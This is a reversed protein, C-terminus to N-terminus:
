FEFLSEFIRMFDSSNVVKCARDNLIIQLLRFDSFSMDKFDPLVIKDPDKLMKRDKKSEELINDGVYLLQNRTFECRVKPAFGFVSASDIPLGYINEFSDAADAIEATFNLVCRDNIWGAIEINYKVKMGMYESTLFENYPNCMLLANNDFRELVDKNANESGNFDKPIPYIPKSANPPLNQPESFSETLIVPSDKYNNSSGSNVTNDSIYYGDQSLRFEPNLPSKSSDDSSSEIVKTEEVEQPSVLNRETVRETVVTPHFIKYLLVIIILILIIIIITKKM